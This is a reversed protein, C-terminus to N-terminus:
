HDHSPKRTVFCWFVCDCSGWGWFTGSSGWSGPFRCEVPFQHEPHYGRSLNSNRTNTRPFHLIGSLSTGAINFHVNDESSRDDRYPQNTVMTNARDVGTAMAECLLCDLRM